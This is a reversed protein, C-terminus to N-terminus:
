NTVKTEIADNVFKPAQNLLLEVEFQAQEKGKSISKDDNNKEMCMKTERFTVDISIISRSCNSYSLWLKYGKVGYPYSIFM